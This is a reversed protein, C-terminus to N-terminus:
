GSTLKLSVPSSLLSLMNTDLLPFYSILNSPCRNRCTNHIHVTDIHHHLIIEAPHWQNHHIVQQTKNEYVTCRIQEAHHGGENTVGLLVHTGDSQNPLVFAVFHSMREEGFAVLYIVMKRVPRSILAHYCCAMQGSPHRFSNVLGLVASPVERTSTRLRAYTPLAPAEAHCM